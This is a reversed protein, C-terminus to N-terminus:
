GAPAGSTTRSPWLTRRLRDARRRFRAVSASVQNASPDSAPHPPWPDLIAQLQHLVTTALALPLVALSSDHLRGKVRLLRPGRPGRYSSKTRTFPPRRKGAGLSRLVAGAGFFQESLRTKEKNRGSHLSAVRHSLSKTWNVLNKRSISSALAAVRAPFPSKGNSSTWAFTRSLTLSVRAVM